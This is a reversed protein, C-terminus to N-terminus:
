GIVFVDACGGRVHEGGVQVGLECRLWLGRIRDVYFLRDVWPGRGDLLRVFVDSQQGFVSGGRLQVENGGVAEDIVLLDDEVCQYVFCLEESCLSTM